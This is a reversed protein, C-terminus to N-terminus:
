MFGNIMASIAAGIFASLFISFRKTPSSSPPLPITGFVTPYSPAATEPLASPGYSPSYASGNGSLLSIRLKQKQECHGPVGSTFYFVGPATINFLSNGNNMYLLPDTLNCSNYNQETVQIVSDQSPPYLFLLSDGIQFTHYKPWFSYVQPNASTPIGWADLDGVKYQYCSVQIQVLFFLQFSYLVLFKPSRLNAM